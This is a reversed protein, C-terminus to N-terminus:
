ARFHCNGAPPTRGRSGQTLPATLRYASQPTSSLLSVAQADGNPTYAAVGGARSACVWRGKCLPPLPHATKRCSKGPQSLPQRCSHFPKHTGTQPIRLLGEPKASAFGGGRACPLCPTRPREAPSAPSVSPNVAPTFRSTRGRKPYVCCGRRSQQRLGVEGQVPSAFPARDKPLAQRASQTTSPLRTGCRISQRCFRCFRCCRSNRRGSLRLKGGLAASRGIGREGRGSPPLVRRRRASAATSHM